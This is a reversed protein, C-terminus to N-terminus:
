RIPSSGIAMSFIHNLFEWIYWLIVPPMAHFAMLPMSVASHSMLTLRQVDRRAAARHCPRRCPQAEIPGM